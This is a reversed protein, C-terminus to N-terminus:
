SSEKAKNSVILSEVMPQHPGHELVLLIPSAQSISYSQRLLSSFINGCPAVCMPAKEMLCVLCKEPAYDKSDYCTTICDLMWTSKMCPLCGPMSEHAKQDFMENLSEVEAEVPKPPKVTATPKEPSPKSPKIPKGKGPKSPKSPKKALVVSLLVLSALVTIFLKM